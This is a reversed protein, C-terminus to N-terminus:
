IKALVAGDPVAEGNSPIGDNYARIMAPNALIVKMCGEKSTGCGSGDDAQSTAIAEWAGYGRFESFAIGTPAKLTFRDQATVVSIVSVVVIVFTTVHQRKM